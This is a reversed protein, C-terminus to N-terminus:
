LLGVKQMLTLADSGDGLQGVSITPPSLQAIPKLGKPPTVGSDLPYEWDGSAVLARQGARSVLFAAFQQALQAHKSSKLVGVGSVNILAGPDHNGFYYLRSKMKKAGGAEAAAQYWYYHNIVGIAVQGREVAAVIAENDNYQRANRAFGSLWKAAAQEGKLKIVVSVVPQFDPESPALSLKGKWAPTGVDLISKPLQSAKVLKPSYILATSRAAVGVWQRAPSRYAAPVKAVTLNKLTALHGKMELRTLPLSNETLFVDAPSASGEALLQAALGGDDGFRVRVNAGTQREFATVLTNTLKEHQSSYLTLTEASSAADAPGSGSAAFAVLGVVCALVGVKLTRRLSM